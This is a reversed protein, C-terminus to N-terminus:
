SMEIWEGRSKASRYIADIVQVVKLGEEGTVLPKTGNEIAKVIDEENKPLVVVIPKIQYVSADTSYLGLSLDDSLIEGKINLTLDNLFLQHNLM